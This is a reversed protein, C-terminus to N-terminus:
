KNDQLNNDVPFRYHVNRSIMKKPLIELVDQQDWISGLMYQVSTYVESKPPFGLDYRCNMLDRVSPLVSHTEITMKTRQIKPLTVKEKTRNRLPYHKQFDKPVNDHTYVRPKKSPM